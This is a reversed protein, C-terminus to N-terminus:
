HCTGETNFVGAGQIMDGGSAVGTLPDEPVVFVAAIKDFKERAGSVPKLPEAIGVTEHVIVIV